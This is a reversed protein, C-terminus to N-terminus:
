NETYGKVKDTYRESNVAAIEGEEFDITLTESEQKKLQSPYAEEPLNSEIEINREWRYKYGL